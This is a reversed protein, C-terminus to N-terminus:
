HSTSPSKERLTEWFDVIDERIAERCDLRCDIWNGGPTRYQTGNRGARTALTICGNGYRSCSTVSGDGGGGRPRTAAEAAPLMASLCAALGALAFTWRVAM